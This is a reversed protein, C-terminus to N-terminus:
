LSISGKGEGPFLAKVEEGEEESLTYAYEKAPSYVFNEVSSFSCRTWDDCLYFSNQHTIKKEKDFRYCDFQLVNRGVRGSSPTFSFGKLLSVLKGSLSNYAEFDQSVERRFLLREETEVCRNQEEFFYSVADFSSSGKVQNQCAFLLPLLLYFALTKKKMRYSFLARSSFSGM